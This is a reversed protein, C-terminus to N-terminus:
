RVRHVADLQHIIGKLRPFSYLDSPRLEHEGTPHLALQQINYMRGGKARQLQKSSWLQRLGDEATATAWAPAPCSSYISSQGDSPQPQVVRLLGTFLPLVGHLHCEQTAMNCDGQSTLTGAVHQM